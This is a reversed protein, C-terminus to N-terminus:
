TLRGFDALYRSSSDLPCSVSPEGLTIWIALPHIIALMLVAEECCDLPCSVSPGGTVWARKVGPCNDMFSTFDDTHERQMRDLRRAAASRGCLEKFRFLREEIYSTGKAADM